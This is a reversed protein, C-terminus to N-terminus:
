LVREEAKEQLKDTNGGLVPPTCPAPVILVEKSNVLKSEPDNMIM